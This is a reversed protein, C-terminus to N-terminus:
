GKGEKSASAASRQFRQYTYALYQTLAAWFASERDNPDLGASAMVVLQEEWWQQEERSVNGAERSVPPTPGGLVRYEPIVRGDELIFDRWVLGWRIESLIGSGTGGKVRFSIIEGAAPPWNASTGLEDVVLKM